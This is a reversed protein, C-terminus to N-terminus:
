RSSIPEILPVYAPYYMKSSVLEELTMEEGQLNKHGDLNKTTSGQAQAERIVACAVAHSVQWPAVGVCHACGPHYSLRCLMFAIMAHRSVDRIRDLAPFTRGEAIEDDTMSDMCAVSSVYLMRDSIETVGAVSAALGIGPFVYMNNCQSPIVTRGDPLEVKLFPFVFWLVYFM